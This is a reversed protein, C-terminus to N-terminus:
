FVGLNHAVLIVGGMLLVTSLGMFVNSWTLMANFRSNEPNFIFQKRAEQALSATFVYAMMASIFGYAFLSTFVQLGPLNAKEKVLTVCSVLGGGHAVLLYGVSKFQQEVTAELHAKIAQAAAKVDDRNSTIAASLMEQIEDRKGTM